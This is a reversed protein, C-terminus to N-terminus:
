VRRTRGGTKVLIDLIFGIVCFVLAPVLYSYRGMFSPEPSIRNLIKLIFGYFYPLAALVLFVGAAGSFTWGRDNFGYSLPISILLVSLFLAGALILRDQQELGSVASRFQRYVKVIQNSYSSVISLSLTGDGTKFSSFPISVEGVHPNDRAAIRVLRNKEDVSLYNKGRRGISVGNIAFLRGDKKNYLYLQNLDKTYPHIYVVRDEIENFVDRRFFTNVGIHLVDKKVLIPMKEIQAFFLLGGLIGGAIIAPIHLLLLSQVKMKDVLSVVVPTAILYSIFISPLLFHMSHRLINRIGINWLPINAKVLTFCTVLLTVPIILVLMYVFIKLITKCIFKMSITYWVRYNICYALSREITFHEFWYPKHTTSRLM